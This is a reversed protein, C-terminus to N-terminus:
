CVSQIASVVQWINFHTTPRHCPWAFLGHQQQKICKLMLIGMIGMLEINTSICRFRDESPGLSVGLLNEWEAAISFTPQSSKQWVSDESIHILCNARKM